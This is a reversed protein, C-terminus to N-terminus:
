DTKFLVKIFIILTFITAQFLVIFAGSPLDFIISLLIGLESSLVGFFISFITMQSFTKSILKATAAPIVLYSAVLLIGVLKISIVITVAILVSLLYNDFAVNIRDVKALEIDFTSYTWREWWFIVIILTIFAFFGSYILDKDSVLLISGFLYSFADSVYHKNLFIFLIGLAVSVAFFIGIATDIELSSNEKLYTLALAVIVTFPISIWFPEFQLFLGLAVGGFAVHALGDGLFSMRRQVVFTGYISCLFSVLFGAILANQVFVHSLLENM